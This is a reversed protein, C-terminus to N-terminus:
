RRGENVLLDIAADIPITVIRRERDVAGFRNLEERQADFLDQGLRVGDFLEQQVMGVEHRPGLDKEPFVGSPRLAAEHAQQAAWAWITLVIGIVVVAAFAGGVRGWPIEDDEQRVDPHRYRFM